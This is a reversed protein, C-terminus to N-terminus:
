KSIWNALLLPLFGFIIIGFIGWGSRNFPFGTTESFITFFGIFILLKRFPSKEIFSLDFSHYILVGIVIFAIIFINGFFFTGGVIKEIILIVFMVLSIFGLVSMITLYTSWFTNKEM